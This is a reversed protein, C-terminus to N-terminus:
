IAALHFSLFGVAVTAGEGNRVRVNICTAGTRGLAERAMETMAQAATKRAADADALDVGDADEIRQRGDDTDFYYRTM